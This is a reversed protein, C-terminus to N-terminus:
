TQTGASIRATEINTRLHDANLSGVVLSGVNANALVFRIAEASDLHGAALGKKVLIGTGQAAAEAILSEHSRDDLHYEIMLVDAWKLAQRAGEVTRGSLGIARAHGQSKFRELTEIVDTENLIRLDDGDSHILVLDLVDTKLRRLSGTLNSQIAAESFDYASNGDAFTEGVKTTLVYEHRRHAISRGIREESLGYAPATDILTIGMDLVENLLKEVTADDPLDYHDPYKIGQNRGIKFSGFAIPSVELGTQGLSRHQM